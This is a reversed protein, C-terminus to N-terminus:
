KEGGSCACTATDPRPSTSAVDFLGLGAFRSLLVQVDPTKGFALASLFTTLVVAEIGLAFLASGTVFLLKYYSAVIIAMLPFFARNRFRDFGVFTAFLGVLLPIGLRVSTEM